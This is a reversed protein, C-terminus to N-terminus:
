RVAPYLSGHRSPTGRTRSSGLEVAPPAVARDNLLQPAAVLDQRTAVPGGEAGRAPRPFARYRRTGSRDVPIAEAREHRARGLVHDAAPRHEALAPSPLPCGTRAPLLHAHAVRFHNAKPLRYARPLFAADSGCRAQRWTCGVGAPPLVSGSVGTAGAAPLRRARSLSVGASLARAQDGPCAVRARCPPDGPRDRAPRPHAAGARAPPLTQRPPARGRPSPLGRARPLSCSRRRCQPAGFPCGVRARSPTTGGAEVKNPGLAAWARAPPLRQGFRRGPRASPCGMRAPALQLELAGHTAVGPLGNARPLSWGCRPEPEDPNPAARVRSPAM